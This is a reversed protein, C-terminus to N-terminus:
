RMVKADKWFEELGYYERLNKRFVHVIVDSYDLVIWHSVATGERGNEQIGMERLRTEIEDAIVKLHPPSNASCIVFFDTLSSLGRLDLIVIDEAKKNEAASRITYALALANSRPNLKPSPTPRRTRRPRRSSHASKRPSPPPPM